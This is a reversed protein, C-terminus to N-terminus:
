RRRTSPATTPRRTRWRRQDLVGEPQEHGPQAGPEALGVRQRDVARQQHVGVRDRGPAPDEGGVARKSIAPRTTPGAPRRRCRRASRRARCSASPTRRWRRAPRARDTSPRARWGRAGGPGCRSAPRARRPAPSRRRRAASRAPRPTRAAASSGCSGSRGRRAHRREAEGQEADRQEEVEVELVLEAEGGPLPAQEARDHRMGPITPAPRRRAGPRGGTGGCGAAASPRMPPSTAPKPTKMTRPSNMGLTTAARRTRRRRCPGTALRREHGRHRDGRRDDGVPQPRPARGHDADVDEQEAPEEAGHEGAQEAVREAPPAREREDDQGGREIPPASM